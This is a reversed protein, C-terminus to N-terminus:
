SNKVILSSYIKDIKNSMIKPSFKALQNAQLELVSKRFGMDELKLINELFMTEDGVKSLTPFTEGLVEKIPAIDSAVIPIDAQMAELLVLGFGEYKSTLVFLDIRKFFKSIEQEHEIWQISSIPLGLDKAYEQLELKLNGRGVIELEYDVSFSKL